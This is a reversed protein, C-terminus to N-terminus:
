LVRLISDMARMLDARCADAAADREGQAILHALEINPQVHNDHIQPYRELTLLFTLRMRALLHSMTRDLTPSGLGAVLKQHFRQNLLPRPADSLVASETLSVLEGPDPFTGYRAAAPEIAARALYLDRVFDEDPTAIFVGRHSIREVIREAALMAFSERLTNRSCDFRESARVENLQQGPMYEGESIAARLAAAVSDALM